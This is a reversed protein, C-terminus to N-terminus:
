KKLVKKKFFRIIFYLISFYINPYLINALVDKRFNVYNLGSKKGGIFIKVFYNTFNRLSFNKCIFFRIIPMGQKRYYNLLQPIRVVEIFDYLSYWEREGILNISLPKTCIYSKSDKFATSLVKPHICTNDFNSWPETDRIDKDNLVKINQLWKEREFVSLFVGILFDWSVKPDIVEWFSCTKDLKLSCISKLNTLNLKNTNLPSKFEKIKKSHLFYSNIFFYEIQKNNNILNKIETLTYPLLLDDNGIIWAFKGRAMSVTQIANIAFGLNKENKRFKLNIRGEYQKIIEQINHNSGNDSVCVEFDFNKVNQSSIFISNLCNILHEPRNFTPICISFLM